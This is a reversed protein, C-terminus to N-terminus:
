SATDKQVFAKMGTEYLWKPHVAQTLTSIVSFFIYKKTVLCSVSIAVVVVRFVSVGAGPCTHSIRSSMLM